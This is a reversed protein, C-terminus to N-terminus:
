YGLVLEYVDGDRGHFDITTLINIGRGRPQYRCIDESRKEAMCGKKEIRIRCDHESDMTACLSEAFRNTFSDFDGPIDIDQEGDIKLDLFEAVVIGSYNNDILGMPSKLYRALDNKAIDWTEDLEAAGDEMMFSGAANMIILFFIMFIGVFIIVFFDGLAKKSRM